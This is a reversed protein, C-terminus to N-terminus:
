NNLEKFYNVLKEPCGDLEGALAKIKYLDLFIRLDELQDCVELVDFNWEDQNAYALVDIAAFIAGRHNM